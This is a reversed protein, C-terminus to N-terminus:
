DSRWCVDEIGVTHQSLRKGAKTLVQIAGDENDGFFFVLRGHLHGSGVHTLFPGGKGESNCETWQQLQPLATRSRGHSPGAADSGNGTPTPAAVAVASSAASAAATMAAAADEGDTRTRESAGDGNDNGLVHGDELQMLHPMDQENKKGKKGRPRKRRRAAAPSAAQPAPAATPASSLLGDLASRILGEAASLLRTAAKSQPRALGTAVHVAM